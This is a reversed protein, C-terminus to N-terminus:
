KKKMFANRIMEDLMKLIWAIGICLLVEALYFLFHQDTFRLILNKSLDYIFLHTLWLWATMTGIWGLGKQVPGTARLILLLGTIFVPVLLFDLTAYAASDALMGRVFIVAACTLIGLPIRLWKAFGDTRQFLKEFAHFRALLYGVFFALLFAPRFWKIVTIIGSKLEGNWLAAAVAIVGMVACAVLFIWRKRKEEKEQDKWFFWDFVPLLLMMKVYQGVYWHAGNYSYELCCLNRFFEEAMFEKKGLLVFLGVFLFITVWYRVLLGFAQRLCLLLSGRLDRKGALQRCTGYGSVFAFTGVCIKGFWAFYIVLDPRWFSLADGYISLDNFFHHYLMLLIAVGQLAASDKKM